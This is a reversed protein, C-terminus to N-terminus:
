FAYGSHEAYHRNYCCIRDATATDCGYKLNAQVPKACSGHSKKNMISEDALIPYEGSTQITQTTSIISGM